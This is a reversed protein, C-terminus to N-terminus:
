GKKTITTIGEEELFKLFFLLRQYLQNITLGKVTITKSREKTGQRLLHITVGKIGKRKGVHRKITEM